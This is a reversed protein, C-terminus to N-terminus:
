LRDRSQYPGFVRLIRVIEDGAELKLFEYLVRYGVVPVERIDAHGGVPWRLPNRPLEEIAMRLRTLKDRAAPGSGDQLLWQRAHALDRLAHRTIELKRPM